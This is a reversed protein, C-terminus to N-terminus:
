IISVKATCFDKLKIPDWKNITTLEKVGPDKRLIREQLSNLHVGGSEKRDLQPYSLINQDTIWRYNLKTCPSLYLDTKTRRYAVIWNLWCWKKSSAIKGWHTSRVEKQSIQYRCTYPRMDMKLKIRNIM